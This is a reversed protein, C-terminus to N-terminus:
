YVKDASTCVQIANPILRATKERTMGMIDKLTLTIKIYFFPSLNCYNMWIHKDFFAIFFFGGKSVMVGDSLDRSSM